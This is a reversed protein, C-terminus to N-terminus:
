YFKTCKNTQITVFSNYARFSSHSACFLISCNSYEASVDRLILYEAACTVFIYVVVREGDSDSVGIKVKLNYVVFLRLTVHGIDFAMVM